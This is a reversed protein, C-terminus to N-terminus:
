KKDKKERFKESTCYSEIQGILKSIEEMDKKDQDTLYQKYQEIKSNMESKASDLLNRSEIDCADGGKVKELESEASVMEEMMKKQKPTAGSNNKKIESIKAKLKEKMGGKGDKGVMYEEIVKRDEATIVISAGGDKYEYNSYNPTYKALIELDAMFQKDGFPDGKKAISYDKDTISELYPIIKILLENRYKVSEEDSGKNWKAKIEAATEGLCGAAYQFIGEKFRAVSEEREKIQAEQRKKFDDDTEGTKRTVGEGKKATIDALNSDFVAIEMIDTNQRRKRSKTEKDDM